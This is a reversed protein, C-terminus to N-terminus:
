KKRLTLSFKKKVFRIHYWLRGARNEGLNRPNIRSLKSAEEIATAVVVEEEEETCSGVSTSSIEFGKNRWWASLGLAISHKFRQNTIVVMSPSIWHLLGQNGLILKTKDITADSERWWQYLSWCYNFAQIQQLLITPEQNIFTTDGWIRTLMVWLSVVKSIQFSRLSVCELAISRPNKLKLLVNSQDTLTIRWNGNIKSLQLDILILKLIKPRFRDTRTSFASVIQSLLKFIKMKLFWYHM